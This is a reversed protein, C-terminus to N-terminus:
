QQCKGLSWCKEELQKKLCDVAKRDFAIVASDEDSDINITRQLSAQVDLGVLSQEEAATDAVNTAHLRPIQSHIPHHHKRITVM